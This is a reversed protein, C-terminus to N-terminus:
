QVRLTSRTTRVGDSFLVELQPSRTRLAAGGDRAFSVIEGTAPDRVLAMPRRAADWELRVQGGSGRRLAAPPAVRGTAAPSARREARVGPGVLRIRDLRDTHALRAPITFAFQRMDENVEALPVGSFPLSFLVAGAADLGEVRYPGPRAPLSPRATIEFAPELVAGSADMRGWVLLSPEAAAPRADGSTEGDGTTRYQLVARYTYDSIWEPDCYSMLDKEIQPSKPTGRFLDYGHVGIGGGAYPFGPDPGAPNGCPAHERGMNHGLEHALTGAGAPLVDYGVATPYGIFGIGAIGVGGPHTLVGYYYRDNGDAVRLAYIEGIMQEWSRATNATTGTSYPTRIDVDYEAVPFMAVLDRVWAEKNFATVNGTTGQRTQLIPVLRLWLKPVARVDLALTGTAPFRMRSGDALPVVRGPDAEVVLSMGPRVLRAPLMANWSGAYDAERVETPISDGEAALDASERLVGDHYVHVRVKPTYFSPRDGRLFVRLYADRGSVLPVSRSLTQVSQTLYVGDVGLDVAGPNVRVVAQATLGAVTVTGRAQGPEVAVLEGGRDEVRGPLDFSWRPGAWAPVRLPEGDQDLVTVTLPVTSGEVVTVRDSSLVVSTPVREAEPLLDSCGGLAAAALVVCLASRSM